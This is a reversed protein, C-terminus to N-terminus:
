KRAWMAYPVEGRVMPPMDPVPGPEVVPVLSLATAPLRQIGYQESRWALARKQQIEDPHLQVRGSSLGQGSRWPM